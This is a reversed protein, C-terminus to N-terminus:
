EVVEVVGMMGRDEHSLVHCHYVFKGPFDLFRTRMVIEGFAPIATTDEWSHADVPEGDIETVQFDNVHIHFPHWDSSTNVLRWEESAGLEVSQDVRDPDFERGDILTRFPDFTESFILERRRDIEAERLDEFPILTAPLPDPTAAPGDSVLTAILLPPQWQFKPTWELTHLAYAGPPGGQVLVEIREGPSLLIQDRSWVERLPNADSAIQHWQHGDLVLTLFLYSSANLIRWRQTEGPAIAVTPQLQGNVFVRVGEDTPFPLKVGDADFEAAQLVLLREPLGHIGPLDDLAGAVILTGAMGGGVQRESDGHMHPHYWYFGPISLGSSGDHPIAYEYAFTEGPMIHVFVNDSNGAPSVHLGHTHLNTGENMRNTLAIGLREGSRMHLTPGPVAGNYNYTTVTRGGMAAPGYRAEFAVDLRGDAGRLVPPEVLNEGTPTAVPTGTSMAASWARGSGHGLAALGATAMAGGLARRRSLRRVRSASALAHDPVPPAAFPALLRM